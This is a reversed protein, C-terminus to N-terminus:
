SARPESRMKRLMLRAARWGYGFAGLIWIPNHALFFFGALLLAALLLSPLATLELPLVAGSARDSAQAKLAKFARWTLLAAIPLTLLNAILAAPGPLLSLVLPLTLMGNFFAHAAISSPLGEKQYAYSLILSHVLRTAFLLPDSLEHLAVFVVSSALAPLWFEGVLPIRRLIRRLGAMLGNRFLMEESVPAMVAAMAATAAVTTVTLQEPVPSHYGPHLAYGLYAAVATVVITIALPAVAALWGVRLSRLLSRQPAPPGRPGGAGPEVAPALGSPQFDAVPTAAVEAPAALGRGLFLEDIAQRQAQGSGDQRSSAAIRETGQTLDQLATRAGSAPTREPSLVVNNAALPVAATVIAQPAPLPLPSPAAQTRVGPAPTVSLSGKLSIPGLAASLIGATGPGLTGMAGVQAPAAAPAASHQQATVAALAQFADLGPATLLCLLALGVALAKAGPRQM